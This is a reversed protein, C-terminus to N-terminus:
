KCPFLGLLLYLRIFTPMHFSVNISNPLYLSYAHNHEFLPLAKYLLTAELLMAIPQLVLRANAQIIALLRIRVDLARLCTYPLRFLELLTYVLLLHLTLHETHVQPQGDIVAVIIFLHWISQLANCLLSRYTLGIATHLLELLKVTYLSKIVFGLARYSSETSETNMEISDSKDVEQLTRMFVFSFLSFCSVLDMKPTVFRCSSLYISSDSWSFSTSCFCICEDINTAPLRRNEVDVLTKAPGWNEFLTKCRCYDLLRNMSHRIPLNHGVQRPLVRYVAWGPWQRNIENWLDDFWKMPEVSMQFAQSKCM